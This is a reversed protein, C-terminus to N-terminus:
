LGYGILQADTLRRKWPRIQKASARVNLFSVNQDHLFRFVTHRNLHQKGEPLWRRRAGEYALLWYSSDLAGEDGHVEWDTRDLPSSTLGRDEAYLALVPVLPDDLQPIVEVAETTLPVDLVIALWIAWAIENGHGLRVQGRIIESTVEQVLDGDVDFGEDKRARLEATVYRLAGVELLACQMLLQQYVPWAQSELEEGRCRAIAYRLVASESHDRALEFALSFLNLFDNIQQKAGDRLPMGRLRRPWPDGLSTPLKEIRTKKENVQLEYKSLASQLHALAEEAQSVSSFALEYDDVMRFGSLDSGWRTALDQDVAALVLESLVTSSDPGIPIGLTQGEQLERTRQDLRNGLLRHDFRRAKAVPKSEVAWSISHTYISPYCQLVDAHLVYRANRRHHARLRPM